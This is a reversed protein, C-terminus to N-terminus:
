IKNPVKALISAVTDSEGRNFYCNDYMCNLMGRFTPQGMIDNDKTWYWGSLGTINKFFNWAKCNYKHGGNERHKLVNEYDIDSDADLGKEQMYQNIARFITWIDSISYLSDELEPNEEIDEEDVYNWYKSSEDSVFCDFKFWKFDGVSPLNVHIIKWKKMFMEKDKDITIHKNDKLDQIIENEREINLLKLMEDREERSLEHLNKLRGLWPEKSDLINVM